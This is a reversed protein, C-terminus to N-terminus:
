RIPYLSLHFFFLPSFALYGTFLTLAFNAGEVINRASFTFASFRNQGRYMQNSTLHVSRHDNSRRYLFLNHKDKSSEIVFCRSCTYSIQQVPSYKTEKNSWLCYIELVLLDHTKMQISSTKSFLIIPFSSLTCFTHLLFMPKCYMCTRKNEYLTHHQEVAMATSPAEMVEIDRCQAAQLEKRIQLVFM